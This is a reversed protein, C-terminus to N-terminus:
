FGEFASPSTGSVRYFLPFPIEFAGIGSDEKRLNLVEASARIATDVVSRGAKAAGAIEPVLFDGIVLATGNRLGAFSLYPRGM